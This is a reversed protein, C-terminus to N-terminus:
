KKNNSIAQRTHQKIVEMNVWFSPEIKNAVDRTDLPGDLWVLNLSKYM